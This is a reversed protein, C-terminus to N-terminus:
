NIHNPTKHIKL